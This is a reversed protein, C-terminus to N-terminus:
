SEPSLGWATHSERARVEQSPAALITVNDPDPSAAFLFFAATFLLLTSHTM